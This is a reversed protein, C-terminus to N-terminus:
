AMTADLKPLRNRSLVLFQVTTYSIDNATGIRLINRGEISNRLLCEEAEIPLFIPYRFGCSFLRDPSHRAPKASCCDDSPHSFAPSHQTGFKQSQSLSTRTANM